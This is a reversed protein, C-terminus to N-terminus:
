DGSSGYNEAAAREPPEPKVIDLERITGSEKLQDLVLEKFSTRNQSASYVTASLLILVCIALLCVMLAQEGADGGEHHTM